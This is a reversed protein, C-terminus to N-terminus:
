DNENGRKDTYPANWWDEAFDTVGNITTRYVKAGNRDTIPIACSITQNPFMAKIMDGNTAGKPFTPTVPPLDKVRKIQEDLLCQIILKVDEAYKELGRQGEFNINIDSQISKIVEARSVCDDSTQQKLAKIIKDQKEITENLTEVHGQLGQIVAEEKTM